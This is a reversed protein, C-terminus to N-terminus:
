LQRDIPGQHVTVGYPGKFPQLLTNEVTQNAAEAAGSATNENSSPAESCGALALVIATATLTKKITLM